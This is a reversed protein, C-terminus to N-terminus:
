FLKLVIINVTDYYFDFPQQGYPHPKVPLSNESTSPWTRYRSQAPPSM